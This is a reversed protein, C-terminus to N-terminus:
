EIPTVFSLSPVQTCWPIGKCQHRTITQGAFAPLQAAGEPPWRISCDVAYLNSEFMPVDQFPTIQTPFLFSHILGCIIKWTAIRLRLEIWKQLLFTTCAAQLTTNDGNLGYGKWILCRSGLLMICISILHYSHIDQLALHSGAISLLFLFGDKM